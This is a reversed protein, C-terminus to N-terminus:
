SPRQPVNKTAKSTDAIEAKKQRTEAIRSALKQVPTQEKEVTLIRAKGDQVHLVQDALPLLDRDHTVLVITSGTQRLAAVSATLSKTGTSDQASTPEDFVLLKPEDYIARAIGVRQAQGGSLRRGEPGLVTDYGNELAGIFEHIGAKRAADVVAQEDPNECFRSINQAITGPLLDISQPLYGIWRGFQAPQWKRVDVGDLAIAGRDPAHVGAIARALTSKGSGSPGVVVLVNGAEVTGSLGEFLPRSSGHASLTVDTFALEGRPDPLRMRDDIDMEESLVKTVDRWGQRALVMAQWASMSREVPAVARSLLISAAIMGGATAQGWVVLWAGVALIAIQLCFRLFRSLAMASSVADHARRNHFYSEELGERTAKVVPSRINMAAVTEGAALVDRTRDMTKGREAQEQLSLPRAIRDNVLTVIFLIVVGALAVLGLMPHIMAIVLLFIPTWPADIFALISEGSLFSRVSGLSSLANKASRDGNASKIIMRDLLQPMLARDCYAGIRTLIQRRSMELIGYVALAVGAIVTLYLLTDLSGSSLVRDLVQLMYVSSTLLLINVFASIVFVARMERKVSIRFDRISVTWRPPDVSETSPVNAKNM